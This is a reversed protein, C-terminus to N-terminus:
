RPQLEAAAARDVYWSLIGSRPALVQIPHVSPDYPGERVAYLAPAKALGETAVMVHRANNLVAPTLTIRHSGMKEVYPARVLLADDTHPDSGPFLSATHGDTGMGLMILDFRPSEGLMDVLLAAYEQAAQLPDDEGRMRHVNQPPVAAARLFADAAMKYNSEPNDPPVCREDGFFIQVRTWDVRSRRPEQGLLEYAAKPTTGGALAVFFAGRQAIAKQADAIFADAVAAAVDAPGPFVHLEGKAREDASM